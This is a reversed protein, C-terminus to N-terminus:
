GVKRSQRFDKSRPDNKALFATLAKSHNVNGELLSDAEDIVVFRPVFHKVRAHRDLLDLQTPTTVVIDIKQFNLYNTQNLISMKYLEEEPM